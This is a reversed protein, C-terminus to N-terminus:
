PFGAFANASASAFAQSTVPVPHTKTPAPHVVVPTHVKKPAPHVYAPAVKKTPAPKHPEVYGCTVLDAEKVDCEKFCSQKIELEGSKEAKKINIDSCVILCQLAKECSPCYDTAYVFEGKCEGKLKIVTEYDTKGHKSGAVPKKEEYYEVGHGKTYPYKETVCYGCYHYDEIAYCMDDKLDWCNLKQSKVKGFIEKRRQEMRLKADAIKTDIDAKISSFSPMLTKRSNILSGSTASAAADAVAYSPGSASSSAIATAVVDPLSIKPNLAMAVSSASASSQSLAEVLLCFLFAICTKM